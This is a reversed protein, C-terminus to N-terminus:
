KQTKIKINIKSQVKLNAKSKENKNQFEIYSKFQSKIKLKLESLQNSHSDTKVNNNITWKCPGETDPM